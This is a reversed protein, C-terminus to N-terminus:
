WTMRSDDGAFVVSSAGSPNVARAYFGCLSGEYDTGYGYTFDVSRAGAESSAILGDLGYDPPGSGDPVATPSLWKVLIDLASACTVPQGNIEGDPDSVVAFIEVHSTKDALPAWAITEPFSTGLCIVGSPCPSPDGSHLALDTPAQPPGLPTRPTTTPEAQAAQEVSFTVTGDFHDGLSSRALDVMTRAYEVISFVSGISKLVTASVNAGLVACAERIATQGTDSGVLEAWAKAVGWVDLRNMAESLDHLAPLTAVVDFATVLDGAAHAVLTLRGADAIITLVNGAVTVAGGASLMDGVHLRVAQSGGSATDFAGTWSATGNPGILGGGAFIGTLESYDPRLNAGGVAPQLDAAVWFHYGNTVTVRAGSPNDDVVNGTAIKNGASNDVKVVPAGDLPSLRAQARAPAVDALQRAASPLRQRKAVSGTPPAVTFLQGSALVASLTYTSGDGVYSYGDGAPPPGGMPLGDQGLPADAPFLADLGTPYAGHESRYRELGLQLSVVTLTRVADPTFGTSSDYAPTSPDALGAPLPNGPDNLAVGSPYDVRATGASGTGSCGGFVLIAVALVTWNRCRPM